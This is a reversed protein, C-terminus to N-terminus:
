IKYKRNKQYKLSKSIRHTDFKPIKNIAAHKEIDTREYAVLLLDNMERKREIHDGLLKHANYLIKNKYWQIDYIM